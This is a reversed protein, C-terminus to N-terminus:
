ARGSAPPVKRFDPSAGTFDALGAVGKTMDQFYAQMEQSLERGEPTLRYYKRAPGESSEELRTAVLGQKKLRLELLALQEPTLSSFRKAIDDM